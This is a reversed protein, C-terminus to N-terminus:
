CLFFYQLTIDPIVYIIRFLNIQSFSFMIGSSNLVIILATRASLYNYVFIRIIFLFYYSNKIIKFNQFSVLYHIMQELNFFPLSLFLFFQEVIALIKELEYNENVFFNVSWIFVTLLSLHLVWVRYWETFPIIGFIIIYLSRM